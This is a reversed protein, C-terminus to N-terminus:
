MDGCASRWSLSTERPTAHKVREENDHLHAKKSTGDMKILRGNTHAEARASFLIAHSSFGRPRSNSSMMLPTLPSSSLFFV